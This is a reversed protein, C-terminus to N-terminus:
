FQDFHLLGKKKMNRSIKPENKSGSVTWLVYRRIKVYNLTKFVKLM